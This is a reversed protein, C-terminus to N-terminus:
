AEERAGALRDLLMVLVLGCAMMGLSVWFPADYQAPLVNEQVLPVTKGGILGSELTEKWPWIKRMAGVMFGTLGAMTLSPFRELLYKLLKAFSIIGVVAGALFVAIIL